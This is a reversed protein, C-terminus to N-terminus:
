KATIVGRQTNVNVRFSGFKQKLGDVYFKVPVVLNLGSAPNYSAQIKAFEIWEFGANGQNSIIGCLRGEHEDSKNEALVLLHTSCCVPEGGTDVMAIRVAGNLFVKTNREWPEALSQVNAEFDTCERVNAAGAQLASLAMLVPIAAMKANSKWM